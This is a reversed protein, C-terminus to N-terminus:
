CTGFCKHGVYIVRVYQNVIHKIQATLRLVLEILYIRNEIEKRCITLYLLLM